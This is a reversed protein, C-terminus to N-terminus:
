ITKGWRLSWVQRMTTDVYGWVSSVLTPVGVFSLMRQVVRLGSCFSVFVSSLCLPYIQAIFFKSSLIYEADAYPRGTTM